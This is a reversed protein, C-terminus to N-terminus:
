EVVLKHVHLSNNALLRSVAGVPPTDNQAVVTLNPLVWHKFVAGADIAATCDLTVSVGYRLVLVRHDSAAAANSGPRCSVRGFSLLLFSLVLLVSAM